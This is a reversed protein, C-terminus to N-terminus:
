EAQYILEARDLTEGFTDLSDIFTLGEADDGWKWTKGLIYHRVKLDEDVPIRVSDSVTTIVQAGMGKERRLRSIVLLSEDTQYVREIRINWAADPTDVRVDLKRTDPNDSGPDSDISGAMVKVSADPDFYDRIAENVQEVTLERLDKPYADIYEPPFGREMFSLIQGAVRGTTSLGVLYSGTLTQLAAEVEEASVGDAHWDEIVSQAAALGADLLPPAFSATMAWHGATLIDGTHYSRINYTLGQKKRVESMLRAHFTGGLIHNGVMFPLYDPDTRQLGTTQGFRVSVSTKDPIRIIESRTEAPTVPPTAGPYPAGGRWDGFANELAATLQEFDIDGAFVLRMSQPGYFEDHFAALDEATTAKTDDILADLTEAYNPHEPPYLLRSLESEARYDPNDVAQLLGALSRSKVTELVEPDFAPERLQEALLALVPGADERLFKGNFELSHAGANFGIAAGLRDLQAAIAFRDQHRTGKDLMAATLGALAPADEPSLAEGAAFSGVFSVMNEVPMDVAIVEIGNIEARQLQESFNVSAGVPEGDTGPERYHSPGYPAGDHAAMGGAESDPVFWGTTKGRDVFHERAVRQVDEATTNEIREPLSLYHTWDGMAIADNLQDAIAYPGDRGYITAARIVSKARDLEESTVGNEILERIEELMIAEAEEHKADATLYAGLLYLGPDRLQPGFAFTANAKGKDDLARYFRGNKDATLIQSILHLAAWDEHTGPPVKYGIMVVGVQGSREITLRRPGLQRPEETVVSPVAEPANPIPGYHEVVAQLARDTDFTGILSLVANEPWYYTDYFERLKDTSTAEIDSLWGIVPTSYPHAIFATAFIEKILTRVPNNEGREYENRVVTMESALDEDRLLLNRMRDAELEIALPVYESPLTAYYNTRDFYTTANSRAGIREMQTSYDNGEDGPRNTTGKFMMHELIHTAGTTGASENRSGVEYTVMATAVPLGETPYVLVRLGNSELRYERMDGVTQVLELGDPVSAATAATAAFLLSASLQSLYPKM